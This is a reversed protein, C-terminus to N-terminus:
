SVLQKMIRATAGWVFYNSATFQCTEVQRGYREVVINKYNGIVTVDRMPLTFVAADEHRNAKYPQITAISALWPQIYSGSHTQELQLKKIFGVRHADIGLEEQLERLATAWLDIDGAQWRGGPFCIEGPHDRLHISRQTLVLTDTSEEILVIVAAESCSRKDINGEGRSRPSPARLASSLDQIAIQHEPASPPEPPKKPTDFLDYTKLNM